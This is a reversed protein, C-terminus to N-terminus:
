NLTNANIGSVTTGDVVLDNLDANAAPQSQHIESLKNGLVLRATELENASPNWDEFDVAIERVVNMAWEGYGAQKLMEIYDYDVIGDRIFKLRMSPAVGLLGAQEGPYILIGEGPVFESFSDESGNVTTWPSNTWYNVTWYLLGNAGISQNIFGQNIRYNIPAYDLAWKPSYGDQILAAYTWVMAGKNWAERVVAKSDKYYSNLIAFIDVIPKGEGGLDSDDLLDIYPKSVVLQKVGAQHLHDAWAKLTNRFTERYVPNDYVEEIEDATYNYKLLLDSHKNAKSHIAEVTPPGEMETAGYDAGSWFDTNMARYGMAILEAEDEPAVGAEPNIRHRLLEKHVSVDGKYNRSSDYEGPNDNGGEGRIGFSTYLNSIAPLEFNWVTLKIQGAFDGAETKVTYTGIYDGPVSNVPIRIDAWFPMNEGAAVTYPIAKYQADSSPAAGTMPDIFPILADPFWKDDLRKNVDNNDYSESPHGVEIFHERYLDINSSQIVSGAEGLLSSVKVDAITLPKDYPAKLVIQFSATEGRAAYLEASNQGGAPSIKQARTLGGLTWVDFDAASGEAPAAVSGGAYSAPGPIIGSSGTLLAASVAIGALWRATTRLAMNGM